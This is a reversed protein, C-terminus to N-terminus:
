KELMVQISNLHEDSTIVTFIEIKSGAPAHSIFDIASQEGQSGILEPVFIMKDNNFKSNSGLSTLMLM